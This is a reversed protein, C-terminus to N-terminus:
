FIAAWRLVFVSFIVILVSLLWCGLNVLDIPKHHMKEYIWGCHSCKYLTYPDPIKVTPYFMGLHTKSTIWGGCVPCISACTCRYLYEDQSSPHEKYCSIGVDINAKGWIDRQKDSLGFAEIKEKENM